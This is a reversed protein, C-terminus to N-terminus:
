SICTKETESTKVNMPAEKKSVINSMYSSFNTANTELLVSIQLRKAFIVM